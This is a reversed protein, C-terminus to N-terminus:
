DSVRYISIEIALRAQAVAAVLKAEMRYFAAATEAGPTVGFDIGAEAVDPRDNLKRVDPHASAM